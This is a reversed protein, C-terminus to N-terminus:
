RLHRVSMFPGLHPDTIQVIRLPRETRGDGRPARRLGEIRSGDLALDVEEERTFISDLVGAFAVAYPLWQAWPHFGIGRLIAWPFALLTGALFFSAPISVLFRHLAPRLRPRVLSLYHVYVTAQLYAYPLKLWPTRPALTVSVLTHVGLVIAAFISYPKGRVVAAAVVVAALGLTSALAFTPGM